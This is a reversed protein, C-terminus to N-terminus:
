LPEIEEEFCGVVLGDGFEVLYIPTNSETHAGVQVIEGLGGNAVLLAEPEADPFTGDNRLDILTKVKQGWQYKPMRPEFIV